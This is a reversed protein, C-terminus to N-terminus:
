HYQFADILCLVFQCSVSQSFSKVLGVDSLPSIDLIYLSSLFSVVMKVINIRGIWSGLHDKWRRFDQKIEKKLSKFNKDYLDKVQKATLTM